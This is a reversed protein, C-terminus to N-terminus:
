HLLAIASITAGVAVTVSAGPDITLTDFYTNSSAITVDGAIVNIADEAFSLGSPDIPSWTDNFTYTRKEYPQQVGESISAGASGTLNTFFMQGITGSVIGGSDSVDFGATSIAEQSHVLQTVFLVSAVLISKKLLTM